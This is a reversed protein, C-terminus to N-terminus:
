FRRVPRVYCTEYKRSSMQEAFVGDSIPIAWAYMGNPPSGWCETSSWYIGYDHDFNGIYYQALNLYLIKLEGWSPLFWDDYGNLAFDYCAQAAYSGAGLLSVISTTNSLGAGVSEDLVGTVTGDAGWELKGPYDSPAAELYRWGDSYVHKDWFVIGGAPGPEGIYYEDEIPNPCASFLSVLLIILLCKTNKTAFRM